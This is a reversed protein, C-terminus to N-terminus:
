MPRATLLALGPFNSAEVAGFITGNEVQANGGLNAINGVEPQGPKQSGPAFVARV